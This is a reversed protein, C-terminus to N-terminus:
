SYYIVMVRSTIIVGDNMCMYMDMHYICSAYIAYIDYTLTHICHYVVGCTTTIMIIWLKLMMHYLSYYLHLSLSPCIIYSSWCYTHAHTYLSQYAHLCAHIPADYVVWMYCRYSYLTIDFWPIPSPCIHISAHVCAIFPLFCSAHLCVLRYVIVQSSLVLLSIDRVLTCADYMMCWIVYSGITRIIRYHHYHDHATIHYQNWYMCCWLYWDM